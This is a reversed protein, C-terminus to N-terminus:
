QKSDAAKKSIANWSLNNLAYCPANADVIRNDFIAVRNGEWVGRSLWDAQFMPRHNRDDEPIMVPEITVGRWALDALWAASDRLDNHGRKILGGKHCDLGHQLSLNLDVLARGRERTGSQRTWKLAVWTRAM